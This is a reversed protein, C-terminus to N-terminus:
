RPATPVRGNTPASGGNRMPAAPPPAPPMPASSMPAGPAVRTAKIDRGTAASWFTIITRLDAALQPFPGTPRYYGSASAPQTAAPNTEVFTLVNTLEFAMNFYEYARGHVPIGVREGIKRLRDSPSTAEAKLARVIPTHEAVTLHLWSMTVVAWFEEREMNGNRRRVLLMDQLRNAQNAISSDDTENPGVANAANM